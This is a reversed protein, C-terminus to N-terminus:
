KFQKYTRYTYAREFADYIKSDGKVAIMGDLFAPWLGLSNIRLNSKFLISNSYAILIVPKPFEKLLAQMFQQGRKRVVRRYDDFSKELRHKQMNFCFPKLHYQENDLMIGTVGGMRAAKAAVEINNFIQEWAQDDFWDTNLRASLNIRAFLKFPKNWRISRLIEVEPKLHEYKIKWKPDMFWDSIFSKGDPRRCMDYVTGDIPLSEIFKQKKKFDEPRRGIASSFNIVKVKEPPYAM